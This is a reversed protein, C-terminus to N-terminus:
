AHKSYLVSNILYWKEKGALQIVRQKMGRWGQLGGSHIICISTGDSFEGAEIQQMLCMCMKSTYIPDLLIGTQELWDLLFDLLQKDLKAYGGFDAENIQYPKGQQTHKYIYGYENKIFGQVREPLSKDRLVSYGIASQNKTLGCVLGALTAGTGCAVTLIDTHQKTDLANIEHALQACGGIAIQNSGGEPIILSDPNQQQLEGLYDSDNRRRYDKRSIFQLEMGAAEADSLTPNNRYITANKPEARIIGVTKFGAQKGYLALAHIHNSFAGGFSILNNIGREKAYNFSPLLKYFKNGSALPNVEDVRAITLKLKKNRVSLFDLSHIKISM